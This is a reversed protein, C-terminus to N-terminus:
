PSTRGYDAAIARLCAVAEQEQRPSALSPSYRVQEFLRTLRRVHESRFGIEALYGEFERPTMTKERRIGRQQQLLYNMKLYCNMVTDKLDHGAQLSQVAQEAERALQEAPSQSRRHWRRWFFWVATLLLTLLGTTLTLTLWLPPEVVFAPPAPAEGQGAEGMELPAREQLQNEEPEAPTIRQQLAFLMASILLLLVIYSLLRSLMRKRAEPRFIFVILWLVILSLFILFILVGWWSTVFNLWTSSTTASLTSSQRQDPAVFPFPQGPQLAM